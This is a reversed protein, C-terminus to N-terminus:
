MIKECLNSVLCFCYQHKTDNQKLTENDEKRKTNHVKWIYLFIKLKELILPVFKKVGAFSLQFKAYLNKKIKSYQQSYNGMGAVTCM